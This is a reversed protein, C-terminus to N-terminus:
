KSSYLRTYLGAYTHAMVEVDAHKEVWIRGAQAIARSKEINEIAGRIASALANSDQAPVLLGTSNNEVIEGIGDVDSAIVLRGSAMAELVVLGLGEWVSPVVVIDCDAYVREVHPTPDHWQIKDDMELKQAYVMLEEKKKGSGTIVLRIDDSSFQTLAQIMYRHGKQEVLRGIIGIRYPKKFSAEQITSFKKVDIGHQIIQVRSPSIHYADRMYTAVAQSPATYLASFNKMCRKICAWLRSESININHETTVVPIHAYRAALRGWVDASFLHTHVIDAHLEKLKQAIVGIRRAYSTHPFSILVCEVGDPLQSMLPREDWLTIITQTIEYQSIHKTLEVVFKEAGGFNLTPIIHVVHIKRKVDEM